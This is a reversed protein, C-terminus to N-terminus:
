VQFVNYNPDFLRKRDTQRDTQGGKSDGSYTRLTETSTAMKDKSLKIMYHQMSNNNYNISFLTQKELFFLSDKCIEHRTKLEPFHRCGRSM